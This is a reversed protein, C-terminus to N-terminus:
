ILAQIHIKYVPQIYPYKVFVETKSSWRLEYSKLNISTPMQWQNQTNNTAAILHDIEEDISSQDTLFEPM